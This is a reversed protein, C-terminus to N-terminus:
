GGTTGYSPATVAAVWPLADVAAIKGAPVWVQVLSAPAQGAVAPTATTVVVEAGLRRVEALQAATVTATTHLVVEIAGDARVHVVGSSLRSPDAGRAREAEVKQAAEVVPAATRSPPPASTPSAAPPPEEGGSGCAAGALALVLVTAM